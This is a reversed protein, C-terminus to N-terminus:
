LACYVRKETFRLVIKDKKLVNLTANYDSESSKTCKRGGKSPPADM